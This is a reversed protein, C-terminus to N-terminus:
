KQMGWNVLPNTVSKMEEQLEPFHRQIISKLTTHNVWNIGVESYTKANFDTTFFRDAQLRRWALLSLIQTTTEGLEFGDIHPEALLGITTDLRDINGNYFKSIKEATENNQTLEYFNKYAPLGLNKRFQNFRPIGRERERVIDLAAIDVRGVIPMDLEQLFKPTNNLEVSGGRQHGFMRLVQAPSYEKMIEYSKEERTKELSITKVVHAASDIVELADPLLSHYRYVQAWEETMAFSIGHLQRNGGAFGTLIPTGFFIKEWGPAFSSEFGHHQVQTFANVVGYWNSLLQMLIVPNQARPPGMETLFIKAILATNILRATQFLRQEDWEPYNAKLADAIANHENAFLTHLVSLGVWWNRTNGSMEVGKSDLPLFQGSLKLKGDIFSRLKNQTIQDSGYVQSADFWHTVENKYAKLGTSTTGDVPTSPYAMYKQGYALTLPDNANLKIIKLDTDDKSHAFWDHIVFQFYTAALFNTKTAPKFKHRTMLELSLERPSPDSDVEKERYNQAPMNRSFYTKAAGMLPKELDNCSGDATRYRINSDTCKINKQLDEGTSYLARDHLNKGVKAIYLLGKIIQMKFWEPNSADFGDVKFWQPNYWDFAEIQQDATVEPRM